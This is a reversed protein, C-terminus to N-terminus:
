EVAGNSRDHREQTHKKHRKSQCHTFCAHYHSCTVGQTDEKRWQESHQRVGRPALSDDEEYQADSLAYKKVGTRKDGIVKIRITEVQVGRAIRRRHWQRVHRVVVLIKTFLRMVFQM